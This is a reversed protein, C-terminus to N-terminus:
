KVEEDSVAAEGSVYFVLRDIYYDIPGAANGSVRLWKVISPQFTESEGILDAVPVIIHQFEGTFKGGPVYGGAILPLDATTSAIGFTPNDRLHISIDEKSERSTKIWFSLVQFSSVDMSEGGWGNNYSIQWPGPETVQTCTIKRGNRFVKSEYGVFKLKGSDASRPSDGNHFEARSSTNVASLAGIGSSLGGAESVATVTLGMPTTIRWDERNRWVRQPDVGFTVAYVGGGVPKM